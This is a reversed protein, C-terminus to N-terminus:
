SCVTCAAGEVAQKLATWGLKKVGAHTVVGYESPGNVEADHYGYIFVGGVYGTSRAWDVFGYINAAQETQPWQLSDGTPAFGTATPWGVETVYVPKGTYAHAREVQARNGSASQARNGTGGYPHVVVGDVAKKKALANWWVDGWTSGEEFAGLLLPRKRGFRARVKRHVTELLRAYAEANARSSAESGWFWGGDPENLIEVSVISPDAEIVRVLREAYETADISSVGQPSYPGWDDYDVQIGAAQFSEFEAASGSELRAYKVMPAMERPESPGWGGGNVGVWMGSAPEASRAQRQAEQAQPAEAAEAEEEQEEKAAEALPAEEPQAAEAPNAVPALEERHQCSWYCGEQWGERWEEHSWDASAPAVVGLVLSSLLIVFRRM